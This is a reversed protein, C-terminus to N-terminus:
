TGPGDLRVSQGEPTVTLGFRARGPRGSDVWWDYAARADDWLRRGGGRCVRATGGARFMVCAWSRDTLSSLWVPRVGGRREAVVMTCGPVRLGLVFRQVAFRGGVFEDETTTTASEDGDAVTGPVYAM